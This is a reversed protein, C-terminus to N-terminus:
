VFRPDQLLQTELGAQTSTCVSNSSVTNESCSCQLALSPSQWILDAPEIWRQSHKCNVKFLCLQFYCHFKESVLPAQPSCSRCKTCKNDKRQETKDKHAHFLYLCCSLGLLYYTQVVFFTCTALKAQKNKSFKFLQTTCGLSEIGWGQAVRICVTTNANCGKLVPDKYQTRSHDLENHISM